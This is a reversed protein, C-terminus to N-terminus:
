SSEDGFLLDIEESNKGKTEKVWLIILTLLLLNIFLFVIFNGQLTFANKMIPYLLALLTGSSWLCLTCVSVGKDPLIESIYVFCIPALSLGFSNIFTNLANKYHM